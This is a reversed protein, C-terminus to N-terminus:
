TQNEKNKNKGYELRSAAEDILFQRPQM